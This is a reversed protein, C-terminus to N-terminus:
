KNLQNIISTLAKSNKNLTKYLLFLAIAGLVIITIMFYLIINSDFKEEKETDKTKTKDIETEFEERTIYTDPCITETRVSGDPKYYITKTIEDKKVQIITDIIRGQEDRPRDKEPIIDTTITGGKNTETVKTTKTKEIDNKTKLAQKKIDCSLLAFLCVSIFFIEFWRKKITKM